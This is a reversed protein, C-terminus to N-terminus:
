STPRNVLSTLLAELSRVWAATQFLPLQDRRTLLDRRLAALKSPQRGLAIAQDRYANSEACILAHLGTAACLSAGMRSAFSEGPCTLLPLGARLAAVGTAGAGYHATDLMLDALACVDAFDTSPVAASFVLRAADVGAATARARLRDQVVSSEQILWLVSGPVNALVDMWLDFTHPDLKHARNFCAYVVGNAPLGLQARSIADSAPRAVTEPSPSWVFACPLRHVSERYQPQLHSPILADDAIVGDVFEAALLGPYGLYHLQVPAARLALVEPRSHHTYGMLDILVDIGDARMRQAIAQPSDVHVQRFHDVGRQVSATYDDAVDVLSYAFVEFQPRRHHAFLGHVLGGMAHQRFDASLYGVRIVGPPRQHTTPPTVWPQMARSISNAWHQALRAQLSARVPSSLLRLPALSPADSHTLYTALRTQLAEIRADYDQWDCLTLRLFAHHYLARTDTPDRQLVAQYTQLAKETHGQEELAQALNFLALGYLASNPSQYRLLRAYCQQALAVRGQLMLLGGMELLADAHRPEQRLVGRLVDVAQAYRGAQRLLRAWEYRLRTNDPDAQLAAQLAQAPALWSSAPGPSDPTM